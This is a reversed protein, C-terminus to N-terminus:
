RILMFISMDTKNLCQYYAAHFNKYLTFLWIVEQFWLVVNVIRSINILITIFTSDQSNMWQENLFSSNHNSDITYVKCIPFTWKVSRMLTHTHETKIKCTQKLMHQNKIRSLTSWSWTSSVGVWYKSSWLVLSSPLIIINQTSQGLNRKLPSNHMKELMVNNSTICYLKKSKRRYM